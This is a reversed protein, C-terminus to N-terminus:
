LGLDGYDGIWGVSYGSKTRRYRIKKLDPLMGIEEPSNTFSLVAISDPYQGHLEQYAELKEMVVRKVAMMRSAEGMCKRAKYNDIILMPAVTLVLLGVVIVIVRSAKM